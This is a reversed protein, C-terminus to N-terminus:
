WFSGSLDVMFESVFIYTEVDAPESLLKVVMKELLSPDPTYKYVQAQGMQSYITFLIPLLILYKKM